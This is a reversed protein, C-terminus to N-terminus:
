KSVLCPHTFLHTILEQIRRIHYKVKKLIKLHARELLHRNVAIIIINTHLYIFRMGLFTVVYKLIKQNIATNHISKIIDM